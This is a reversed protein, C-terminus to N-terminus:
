RREETGHERSERHRQLYQQWHLADWLELHDGVGVLVMEQRLGAFQVLREPLSVRGSRDVACEEAQAFSLRRARRVQSPSGPSRDLQELLRELGGASYLWLSRDPGPLVFLHRLRHEGLQRLPEPP